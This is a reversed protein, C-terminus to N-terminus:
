GASAGLTPKELIVCQTLVGGREFFQARSARIADVSFSEFGHLEEPVGHVLTLGSADIMRKVSINEGWWNSRKATFPACDLFLDITALLRGGPRLLRCCERMLSVLNQEPIHELVSICFIRDFAERELRANEVYDRIFRVRGDAFVANLRAFDGEPFGWQHGGPPPVLPDVSTVRVGERALVFQFGSLGGGIELASMGEALDSRFYCWPYEFERTRNNLQFGFPGIAKLLLSPLRTKRRLVLGKGRLRVRLFSEWAGPGNPAKHAENWSVYAKPLERRALM